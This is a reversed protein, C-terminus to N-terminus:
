DLLSIARAMELKQSETLTAGYPVYIGWKINKIAQELQYIFEGYKNLASLDTKPRVMMEGLVGETMIFNREQISINMNTYILYQELYVADGKEMLSKIAGTMLTISVLDQTVSKHNIGVSFDNGLLTTKIIDEKITDLENLITDSKEVTKELTVQIKQLRESTLSLKAQICGKAFWLFGLSVQYRATNDKLTGTILKIYDGYNKEVYKKDQGSLFMLFAIAEESKIKYLDMSPLFPIVSFSSFESNNEFFYVNGVHSTEKSDIIVTNGKNGTDNSSNTQNPSSTPSPSSTPNPQNTPNTSSTSNTSNASSTPSPTSIPNHNQNNELINLPQVGCAGSWTVGDNSAEFYVVRIGAQSFSESFAAVGATVPYTNYSNGNVVMRVITADPTYVKFSISDEVYAQDASMTFSTVSPLEIKNQPQFIYNAGTWTGTYGKVASESAMNNNQCQLITLSLGSVDISTLQNYFCYLRKLGYPLTPLVTLQNYGCNLEILSTPLAPLSTLNSNSFCSLLELNSPLKPLSTLQNSSCWLSTLNAPLTPLVSLQNGICSFYTLSSPLSTLLTISNYSIDLYTLSSPLVPLFAIQNNDCILTQLSTFHEIGALNKIGKNSISLNIIEGVDTDMIPEPEPKGVLVRVTALFSSDTFNATIDAGTANLAMTRVEDTSLMFVSVVVEDAEDLSKKQSEDENKETEEEAADLLKPIDAMGQVTTCIIDRETKRVIVGDIFDPTFIYNEKEISFRYVGGRPLDSLTWLGEKDTECAKVFVSDEYASVCVFEIGEGTDIDIIKGYFSVNESIPETQNDLEPSPIVTIFIESEKVNEIGAIPTNIKQQLTEIYPSEEVYQPEGDEITGEGNSIGQQFKDQEQSKVSRESSDVDELLKSTVSKDSEGLGDLGNEVFNIDTNDFYEDASGQSDMLVSGFDSDVGIVEELAFAHPLILSLGIALLVSIM